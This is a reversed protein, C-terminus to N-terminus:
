ETGSTRGTNLAEMFANQLITLGHRLQECEEASLNVLFEEIRHRTHNQIEDLMKRGDPAIEITVVRRDEKSRIRRVWGRNELTTITNSMTPASVSQMEALEGLTYSRESLMGMLGMHGPAINHDAKRMESAMIRMVFPIIDLTKQAIESLESM